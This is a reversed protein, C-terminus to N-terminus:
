ELFKKKLLAIKEDDLGIQTKLYIDVSGYRKTIASFTADLDEKKVSLMTKAVEPDIHLPNLDGSMRYILAQNTATPLVRVLDPARDGPLAHPVAMGESTGGFGGDGRLLTTMTTTALLTGAGDTVQREVVAVAGKTPGKDFLKVIRTTGVIEGQTPLPQHIVTAQEGHLVKRWDAGLAPDRWMFGPYGLVAALTPLASLKEEFTFELDEAGIGLAYLICIRPTLQERVVIPARGLLFEPDIAM